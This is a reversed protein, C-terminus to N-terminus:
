NYPQNSRLPLLISSPNLPIGHERFEFHLHPGTAAGTRGVRALLEGRKVLDGVRVNISRCHAYHSTKGDPHILVVLKGYGGFSDAFAVRGSLVAYIPTGIPAALDVGDHHRIVKRIPHRREGFGSTLHLETLPPSYYSVSLQQASLTNASFLGILLGCLIGIGKAQM